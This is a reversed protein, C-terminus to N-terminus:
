PLDPGPATLLFQIETRGLLSRQQRRQEQAPAARGREAFKEVGDPALLM